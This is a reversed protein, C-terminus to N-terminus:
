LERRKLSLNRTQTGTNGGNKPTYSLKTSRRTQSWFTTPEFGIAGVVKKAYLEIASCRVTLALTTPELGVKGALKFLLRTTQLVPTPTIM